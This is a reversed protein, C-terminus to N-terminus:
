KRVKSTPSPPLGRFTRMYSIWHGKPKGALRNRVADPHLRAGILFRELAWDTWGRGKRANRRRKTADRGGQLAIRTLLRERFDPAEMADFLAAHESADRTVYANPRGGSSLILATVRPVCVLLKRKRWARVLFDQSPNSAHIRRAPRWGGLTSALSRTLLWLSAPVFHSPDYCLETNTLGCRVVGKADVDFLPAYVLDAGTADLHATLSALHDPFWLDDHNLFAILEGSALALGDNNPGSQEGFNEARNVFCLRSDGFSRVLAETDDTCADGVIIHEWDPYVQRRVSQIAYRLVESRNYTATIVTVRPM